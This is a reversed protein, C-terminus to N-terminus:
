VGSLFVLAGPINPDTYPLPHIRKGGGGMFSPVLAHQEPPFQLPTFIRGVCALWFMLFGRVTYIYLIVVVMVMHGPALLKIELRDIIYALEIQRSMVLM